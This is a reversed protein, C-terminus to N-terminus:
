QNFDPPAWQKREYLGAERVRQAFEAWLAHRKDTPLNPERLEKYDAALPAAQEWREAQQRIERPLTFRFFRAAPRLNTYANVKEPPPRRSATPLLHAAPMAPQDPERPDNPDLVREADHFGLEEVVEAFREATLSDDTTGSWAFWQRFTPHALGGVDKLFNFSIPHIRRAVLVPVVDPRSALASLLDWMENDWPYIWSRINKVEIGFPIYGANPNAADLPFYGAADVTRGGALPPSAGSLDSGAIIRVGGPMFEPVLVAHESDAFRLCAAVIKEAVEGCLRPTSTWSLYSRYLRRRSAAAREIETKQGKNRAIEDVWASVTRGQMEVSDAAIVGQHTLIDRAGTLHHPNPGKDACLRDDLNSTIWGLEGLFAEVEPWVVASRKEIFGRVAGVAYREWEARGDPTWCGNRKEPLRRVSIPTKERHSRKEGPYTTWSGRETCPRRSM